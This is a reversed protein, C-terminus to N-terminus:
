EDEHRQRFILTAAAADNNIIFKSYVDIFPFLYTSPARKFLKIFSRAFTQARCSHAIALTSKRTACSSFFILKKRSHAAVEIEREYRVKFSRILFNFKYVFLLSKIHM